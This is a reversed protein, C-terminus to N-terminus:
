QLGGLYSPADPPTRRPLKKMFGHTSKEGSKGKVARHSNPALPMGADGCPKQPEGDSVRDGHSYESESGEASRPSNTSSEL